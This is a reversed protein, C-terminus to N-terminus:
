LQIYKVSSRKRTIAPRLRINRGIQTGLKKSRSCFKRQAYVKQLSPYAFKLQDELHTDILQLQESYTASRLKIKELYGEGLGTMFSSKKVGMHKKLAEKWLRDFEIDLYDAMYHALEVNVKRGTVEIYFTRDNKRNIVPIVLFKQLIAIIATQKACIVKGSLIRKVFIYDEDHDKRDFFTLNHKILLENAKATALESEYVNFSTTLAMLKKIKSLIKENQFNVIDNTQVLAKCVSEGWGFKKCIDHYNKGHKHQHYTRPETLFHYLHALEHRLTDKLIKEDQYFFLQKHLGIRHLNPEFLGLYKYDEFVYFHLPYYSNKFEYRTKKFNINMESLMIDKVYARVRTLFVDITRSHISIM